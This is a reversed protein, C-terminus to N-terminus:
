RTVGKHKEFTRAGTYGTFCIWFATWMEEPIADLSVETGYTERIDSVVDAIVALARNGLLDIKVLGTAEVGRMDYQTVVLGKASRELPLSDSLPRPATASSAGDGIVIGGPFWLHLKNFLETKRDAYLTAVLPNAAAQVLGDAM